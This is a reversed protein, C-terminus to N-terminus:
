SETVGHLRGPEEPWPIKRALISSHTAMEKELPDEGGVSRVQIAQTEQTACLNKVRQAVSFAWNGKKYASALEQKNCKM